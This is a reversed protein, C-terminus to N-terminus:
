GSKAIASELEATLTMSPAVLEGRFRNEIQWWPWRLRFMLWRLM